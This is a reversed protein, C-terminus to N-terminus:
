RAAPQRPYSLHRRPPLTKGLRRGATLSGTEGGWDGDGREMRCRVIAVLTGRVTGYEGKEFGIRKPEGVRGEFRARAEGPSTTFAKRGEGEEAGGCGRLLLGGAVNGQDVHVEVVDAFRLALEACGHDEVARTM